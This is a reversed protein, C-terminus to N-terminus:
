IVGSEVEVSYFDDEDPLTGSELTEMLLNDIMQCFEKLTPAEMIAGPPLEVNLDDNVQFLVMMTMLSDGGLEFFNDEPNVMDCQLIGAWIGSIISETRTLQTTENYNHLQNLRTM